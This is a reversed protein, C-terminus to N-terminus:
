ASRSKQGIRNRDLAREDASRVLMAKITDADGRRIGNRLRFLTKLAEEGFASLAVHIPKRHVRL